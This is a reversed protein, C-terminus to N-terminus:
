FGYQLGLTLSWRHRLQPGDLYQDAPLGAELAFRVGRMFGAPLYFDLGLYADLRRGSLLAADEAPSRASSLLPDEGSPAFSQSWDLRFSTALSRAWCYALWSTASYRNGLRYGRRNTGAHLVGRIQAGWRLARWYGKYTFGPLLDVTGSGLQMVYPLRELVGSGVPTLDSENTSGSPLSIGLNLHVRTTAGDFVHYLVAVRLDGLGRARTRYSIKAGGGVAATQEMEKDLYPLSAVVTLDEIPAWMLEFVHSDVDLWKPTIAYTGADLLANGDIEGRGDLLGRSADRRYRYALMVDGKQHVHDEVVGAPAFLDIAAVDAATARCPALVVAFLLIARIPRVLVRM